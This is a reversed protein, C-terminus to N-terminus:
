SDRPSPSTYLLCTGAIGDTDVLTVTVTAGRNRNGGAIASITLTGENDPTPIPADPIFLLGFPFQDSVGFDATGISEILQDAEGLNTIKFFNRRAFGSTLYYNLGDWAMHRPTQISSSTGYRLSSTVTSTAAGTTRDLVYIRDPSDGVLLLRTGDWAVGVPSNQSVGFDTASGVRTALGTVRDVTYLARPRNGVMYLNTGDWAIGTPGIGGSVGYLDAEGANSVNTAIGTTRDISVLRRSGAAFLTTDDWALGNYQSVNASGVATATGTLRNVPYLIRTQGGYMYLTGAPLGSVPAVGHVLTEGYYARTIETEGLYLKTATTNGIAIPPM